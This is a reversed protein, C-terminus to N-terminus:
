APRLFSPDPLVRYTQALHCARILARISQDRAQSCAPACPLFVHTGERRSLVNSAALARMMWIAASVSRCDIGLWHPYDQSSLDMGTPESFEKATQVWPEEALEISSDGAWAPQILPTEREMQTLLHAIQQHKTEPMHDLWYHCTKATATIVNKIEKELRFNSGTPLYLALGRHAASVNEMVIARMLWGAMAASTCYMQIWGAYPSPEACLGTVLSIGRCIERSAEPLAPPQTGDDLGCFPMLLKGRHPPGGAMALDCFSGWMENWLVRGDAGFKLGASGMSQPKVEEDFTEYTEPLLVRLRAELELEDNDKLPM